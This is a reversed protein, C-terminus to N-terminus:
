YGVDKGKKQLPLNKNVFNINSKINTNSIQVSNIIKNKIIGINFLIKNTHCNVLSIDHMQNMEDELSCANM